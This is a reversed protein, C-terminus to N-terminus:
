LRLTLKGNNGPYVHDVRYHTKTCLSAFSNKCELRLECFCLDFLLSMYRGTSFQFRSILAFRRWATRQTLTCRRHWCFYDRSDIACLCTCVSSGVCAAFKLHIVIIVCFVLFFVRCCSDVPKLYDVAPSEGVSKETVPSRRYDSYQRIWRAKSKKIVSLFLKTQTVCLVM